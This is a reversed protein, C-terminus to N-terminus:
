PLNQGPAPTSEKRQAPTDGTAQPDASESTAQASTSEAEFTSPLKKIRKSMNRILLATGVGLVIIILLGMPGALGDGRTDGFNNDALIEIM